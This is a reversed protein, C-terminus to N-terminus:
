GLPTELSQLDMTILVSDTAAYTPAADSSPQILKSWDIGVKDKSGMWGPECYSLRPGGKLYWPQNQTLSYANATLIQVDGKSLSMPVATGWGQNASGVHAVTGTDLKKLDNSWGVKITSGASFSGLYAVRTVLSFVCAAYVYTTAKAAVQVVPTRESLFEGNQDLGEILLQINGAAPASQAVTATITQPHPLLASEVVSLASFTTRTSISASLVLADLDSAALITLPVVNAGSVVEIVQSRKGVGRM